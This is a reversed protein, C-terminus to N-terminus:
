KRDPKGGRAARLERSSTDGSVRSPSTLLAPVAEAERARPTATQARHPLRLPLAGVRMRRAQKRLMSQAGPPTGVGGGQRMCRGQELSRPLEAQYRGGPKPPVGRCNPMMGPETSSQQEPKRAGTPGNDREDGGSQSEM